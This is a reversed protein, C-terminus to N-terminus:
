KHFFLWPFVRRCNKWKIFEYFKFSITKSSRGLKVFSVIKYSIFINKCSLILLFNHFWLISLPKYNGSFAWSSFSFPSFSYSLVESEVMIMEHIWWKMVNSQFKFVGTLEMQTLLWLLLLRRVLVYSIPLKEVTFSEHKWSM